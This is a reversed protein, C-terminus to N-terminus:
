RRDAELYDCEDAIGLWPVFLVLRNKQTRIEIGEATQHAKLVGAVSARTVILKFQEKRTRRFCVGARRHVCADIPFSDM